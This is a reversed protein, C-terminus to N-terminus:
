KVELPGIVNKTLIVVWKNRSSGCTDDGTGYQRAAGRDIDSEQTHAPVASPRLGGFVGDHHGGFVNEIDLGDHAPLKRRLLRRNHRYARNSTTGLPVDNWVLHLELEGDAGLHGFTM